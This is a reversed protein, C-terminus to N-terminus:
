CPTLRFATPTRGARIDNIADDLTDRVCDIRKTYNEFLGQATNQAETPSVTQQPLVTELQHLDDRAARAQIMGFIGVGIGILAVVIAVVVLRYLREIDGRVPINPDM